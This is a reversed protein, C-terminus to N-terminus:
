YPFEGRTPPYRTGMSMDLRHRQLHSSAQMLLAEEEEEAQAVNAQGRRPQRCDRAWHGLKGCNHCGDDRAPKKNGVAGGQAGGRAGGEAHGRAGAQAGGRAKRQKGRKRGRTSSSEGKKKDGQCAEWQERTLHLKGGITIPGSPAQPEDGDVV